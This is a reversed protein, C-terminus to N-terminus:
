LERLELTLKSFEEGLATIKGQDNSEEAKRIEKELIKLKKNIYAKKLRSILQSIEYQIEKPAEENFNSDSLLSLRNFYDQSAADLMVMLKQPELNHEKNYHIILEKYLKELPPFSLAAPELREQVAEWYDPFKIMLALLREGVIQEHSIPPATFEQPARSVPRLKDGLQNLTKVLAEEAVALISALKKLYHSQEVADGLKFIVALLKKAAKKKHDVQTLDLDKLTVQFIYDLFNEAKKLAEKWQNVDKKILEDPDKGEKLHVVKVNFGAQWALDIGRLNAATGAVDADFAIMVNMTFRKLLKIQEATLATGSVAVVNKTGAQYAAIADMNGEVLIAYDKKRIEEKALDLNYLIESKKYIPTEPSNIYKAGEFEKAMTRGTFGVVNGHVDRIPFILRNRFRDYPRGKEGPKSVGGLEIERLSYKKNQLFNIADDWADKAYGLQFIKVTEPKVGRGLLYERVFKAEEAEQLQQQWYESLDRILDLLRTKQNHLEPDKYELKVNARKALIRLAEPFEVGEVRKIFAFHDGGLGCGFCHWIQKDPSVMFSPTKEHHFPCRAKFNFGAPTLKVYEQILDVLDLKSKIEEIPSSM